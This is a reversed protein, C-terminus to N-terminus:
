QHYIHEQGSLCSRMYSVYQKGVVSKDWLRLARERCSQQIITRKWSCVEKIGTALDQPDFPDALFGTHLHEVTDIFGSHRFAVVPTGCAQSETAVQGFSEVRSPTVTVDCASYLLSLDQDTDIPGLQTQQFPYPAASDSSNGFIVVHYIHSSISESLHSLANCFLDYGKRFDSTANFAGFLILKKDHPLNFKSRSYHTSQIRWVSLDLPNPIIALTYSTLSQSQRVKSALWHSTAILHLPPRRSWSYKKRLVTLHNISFFVLWRLRPLNIPFYPSPISYHSCGNTVWEDALRWFVPGKLTQIEEISITWDGIWHLLVLSNSYHQFFTNIHKSLGSPFIAFSQLPNAPPRILYLLVRYLFRVIVDYTPFFPTLPSGDVDPDNSYKDIVKMSSSVGPQLQIAKFVRFSARAAGGSIDSASVHLINLSNHCHKKM